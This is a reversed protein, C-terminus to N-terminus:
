QGTVSGSGGLEKAPSDSGLSAHCLALKHWPTATNDRSCATHSGLSYPTPLPLTRPLGSLLWTQLGRAEQSSPCAQYPHIPVQQGWLPPQSHMNLLSPADSM